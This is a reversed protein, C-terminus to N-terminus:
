HDSERAAGAHLFPRFRSRTNLGRMSPGRASFGGSICPFVAAVMYVLVRFFLRIRFFLPM